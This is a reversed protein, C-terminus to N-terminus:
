RARRLSEVELDARRHADPAPVDVVAMRVASTVAATDTTAATGSARSTSTAAWRSHISTWPPPTTSPRSM